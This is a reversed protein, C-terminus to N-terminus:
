YLPINPELPEPPLALPTSRRRRAIVVAIVILILLVIVLITQWSINFPPPPLPGPANSTYEPCTTSTPMFCNNSVNVYSSKQVPLYAFSFKNDTDPICQNPKTDDLTHHDVSLSDIGAEQILALRFPARGSVPVDVSQSSNAIVGVQAVPFGSCTSNDWVHISTALQEADEGCKYHKQQWCGPTRCTM